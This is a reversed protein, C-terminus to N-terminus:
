ISLDIIDFRSPDEGKIAESLIPVISMMGIKEIIDKKKEDSIHPGMIVRSLAGDKVKKPGYKGITMVRYEDEYEWQKSKHFMAEFAGGKNQLYNYAIVDDDYQIKKIKCFLEPDAMLDYELCCGKNSETYHAWMLINDPKTSLCLFGNNQQSQEIVDKIIKSAQTPNHKVTELLFLAENETINNESFFRSWDWLTNNTDLKAFGEYEDNFESFRAFYVMGEGIARLANDATTYKYLYRPIQNQVIATKLIESMSMNNLDTM